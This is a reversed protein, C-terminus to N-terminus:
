TGATPIDTEAIPLDDFTIAVTRQQGVAPLCCITSILLAGVIRFPFLVAENYGGREL